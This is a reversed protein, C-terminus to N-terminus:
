KKYYQILNLKKMVQDNQKLSLRSPLLLKEIYREALYNIRYSPNIDHIVETITCLKYSYNTSNGKSFVM